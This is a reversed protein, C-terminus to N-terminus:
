PHNTIAPWWVQVTASNSIGVWITTTNTTNATSTTVLLNNANYNTSSGLNLVYAIGTNNSVVTTPITSSGGGSPLNALPIAVTAGSGGINALFNTTSGTPVTNALNTLGSGNGTGVIGSGLNFRGTYPATSNISEASNLHLTTILVNGIYELRDFTGNMVHINVPPNLTYNADMVFNGAADNTIYIAYPLDQGLAPTYDVLGTNGHLVNNFVGIQSLYTSGQDIFNQVVLNGQGNYIPLVCEYTRCNKLVMEGRQSNLPTGIGFGLSLESTSPYASSTGGNWQGCAIPKVGDLISFSNGMMVFGDAVAFAACNVFKPQNGGVIWGVMKSQAAVVSSGIFGNIYSPATFMERGGSFVNEFVTHDGGALVIGACFMNNTARISFDSDEVNYAGANEPAGQLVLNTSCYLLGLMSVNYDANNGVRSLGNTMQQMTVWSSATCELRTSFPGQGYVKGVNTQLLQTSFRFVGADIAIAPPGCPSNSASISMSQVENFGFTTSAPFYIIKALGNTTITASATINSVVYASAIFDYYVVTNPHIVAFPLASIMNTLPRGSPDNTATGAYTASAVASQVQSGSINTLTFTVNTSGDANVSFTFYGNTSTFTKAYPRNTYLDTHAVAANTGAALQSPTAFNNTDGFIANGAGTVSSASVSNLFALSGLNATPTFLSFQNTGLAGWASNYSVLTLYSSLSSAIAYQSLINTSFNGWNTLNLSGGQPTFGLLPQAVQLALTKVQNTAGGDLNTATGSSGSGTPINTYNVGGLTLNTLIASGNNQVSNTLLLNQASSLANSNGGTSFNAPSNTAWADLNTSHLQYTGLQYPYENTPVVIHQAINYVNTSDDPSQFEIIGVVSNTAIYYGAMLFQASTGSANPTVPIPRSSIFSLANVDLIPFPGIPFMKVVTLDPQGVMNTVTMTMVGARLLLTPAFFVCALTACFIAGAVVSRIQLITKM